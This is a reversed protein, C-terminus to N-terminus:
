YKGKKMCKSQQVNLFIIIPSNEGKKKRSFLICEINEIPTIKGFPKIFIDFQFSNKKFYFFNFFIPLNKKGFESIYNLFLGLYKSLIETPLWCYYLLISIVGV